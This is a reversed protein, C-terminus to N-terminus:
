VCVRWLASRGAGARGAGRSCVDPGAGQVAQAGLQTDLTVGLHTAALGGAADGRGGQGAVGRGLRQRGLAGRRGERADGLGEVCDTALSQGGWGNDAM